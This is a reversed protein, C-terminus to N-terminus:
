EPELVIPRDPLVLNRGTYDIPEDSIHVRLWEKMEDEDYVRFNMGILGINRTRSLDPSVSVRGSPKRIRQEMVMAQDYLFPWKWSVLPWVHAPLMWGWTMHKYPKVAFPDSANTSRKHFAGSCACSLSACMVRGPDAQPGLVDVCAVLAVM